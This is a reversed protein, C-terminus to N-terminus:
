PCEDVMDLEAGGAGIPRVAAVEHEAGALRVIARRTARPGAGPDGAQGRVARERGALHPHLLTDDAATELGRVGSGTLAPLHPGADCSRREDGEFAVEDEVLAIGQAPPEVTDSDKSTRMTPAPMTPAAHARSSASAPSETPTSSPSMTPLPAVAAPM